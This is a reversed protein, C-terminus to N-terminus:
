ISVGSKLVSNGNHREKLVDAGLAVVLKFGEDGTLLFGVAGM